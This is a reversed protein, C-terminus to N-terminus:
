GLLATTLVSFRLSSNKLIKKELKATGIMPFSILGPQPFRCLDRIITFKDTINKTPISYFYPNNSSFILKTHPNLIIPQEIIAEIHMPITFKNNPFHLCSNLM